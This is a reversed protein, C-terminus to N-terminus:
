ATCASPAGARTSRSRWRKGATPATLRKYRKGDLFFTVQAIRTGRVTATFTKKVCGSPGRLRATGNVPNDPLQAQLNTVIQDTDTAKRGNRDTGTVTAVNTVSSESTTTLHSCTYNWKDGPDLSGPSTDGNKSVLTPQDDCQPDTM